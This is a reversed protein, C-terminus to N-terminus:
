CGSRSPRRQTPAIMDDNCQRRGALAAHHGGQRRRHRFQDDDAGARVCRWRPLRIRGACTRPRETAQGRIDELQRQGDVISQVYDPLMAPNYVFMGDM